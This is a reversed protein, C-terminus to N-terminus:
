QQTDGPKSGRKSFSYSDMKVSSRHGQVVVPFVTEMLRNIATKKRSVVRKKFM